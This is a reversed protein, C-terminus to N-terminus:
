STPSQPCLIKVHGEVGCNWCRIPKRKMSSDEPDQGDNFRELVKTKQMNRDRAQYQFTKVQRVKSTSRSAPKAAEIELAHALAKSITKHRAIVKSVPQDRPRKIRRSLRSMSLQEIVEAPATPFALNVM